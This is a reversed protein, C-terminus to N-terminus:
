KKITSSGNIEIYLICYLYNSIAYSIFIHHSIFICVISNHHLSGHIREHENEDFQNNKLPTFLYLKDGETGGNDNDKNKNNRRDLVFVTRKCRKNEVVRKIDETCRLMERLPNDYIHYKIKKSKLLKDLDQPIQEKEDESDEDDDDDDNSSEEEDSFLAEVGICDNAAPRADKIKDNLILFEIQIPIITTFNHIPQNASNRAIRAMEFMYNCLDLPNGNIKWIPEMFQFPPLIRGQYSDIATKVLDLIKKANKNQLYQKFHPHNCYQEFFDNTSMKKDSKKGKKIWENMQCRIASDVFHILLPYNNNKYGLLEIHLIDQANNNKKSLSWGGGANSAKPLMLPAQLKIKKKLPSSGSEINKKREKQPIEKSLLKVIVSDDMRLVNNNNNNNNNYGRNMMGGGGGNAVITVKKSNSSSNNKNLNTSPLQQTSNNLKKEEDKESGSEPAKILIADHLLQWIEM